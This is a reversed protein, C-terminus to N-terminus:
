NGVTCMKTVAQVNLSSLSKFSAQSWEKNSLEVDRLGTGVDQLTFRADWNSDQV